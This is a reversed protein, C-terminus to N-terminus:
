RLNRSSGPWFHASQQSRVVCQQQLSMALTRSRCRITTRICWVSSLLRRAEFVAFSRSRKPACSRTQPRSSCSRWSRSSRSRLLARTSKGQGPATHAVSSAPAAAPPGSQMTTSSPPQFSVRLIFWDISGRTVRHETDVAVRPWYPLVRLYLFPSPSRTCVAPANIASSLSSPSSSSLIRCSTPPRVSNKPDKSLCNCQDPTGSTSRLVLM